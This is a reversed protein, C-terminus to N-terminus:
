VLIFLFVKQTTKISKLCMITKCIQTYAIINFLVINRIIIFNFMFTMVFVFHM